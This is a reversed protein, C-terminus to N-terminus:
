RIFVWEDMTSQLDNYQYGDVDYLKLAEVDSLQNEILYRTMAGRAHKAYMMVTTYEGNKFEKFIPTIIRNKLLNQRIVKFYESSALNIIVEGKELEKKLAKTVKEGWFQYLNKQDEKPSFKTGMELRYPYVLDFPKLIGYLGSLIRLDKNLLDFKSSDLTAVNLARYVEGDFVEVAPMAHEPQLSAKKWQNFRLVNQAALEVSIGMLDQLGVNKIKKLDKVLQYAEKEFVPISKEHILSSQDNLNKAPSLLIKM